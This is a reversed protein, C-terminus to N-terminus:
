ARREIGLDLACAFESLLFIRASKDPALMGKSEDPRQDARAKFATRVDTRSREEVLQAGHVGSLPMPSLESSKCLSEDSPPLIGPRSTYLNPGYLITLRRHRRRGSGNWSCQVSIIASM